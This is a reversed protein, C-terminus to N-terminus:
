KHIQSFTLRGAGGKNTKESNSDIDVGRDIDMTRIIVAKGDIDAARDIIAEGDNFATTESIDM